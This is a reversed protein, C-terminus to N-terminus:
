GGSWASTGGTLARGCRRTGTWSSPAGRTWCPSNPARCATRPSSATRTPSSRSSSASTPSTPGSASWGAQRTACRRPSSWPSGTRARPPPPWWRPGRLRSSWPAPSAPRAPWSSAACPRASGPRAPSPAPTSRRPPSRKARPTAAARPSFRARPDVLLALKYIGYAAVYDDMARVLPNDRGPRRWNAPDHAATNLGFAQVDGYREFLSRDVTDTLAAAADAMRGMALGRLTGREVLLAGGLLLAPALGSGLLLLVIRARITLRQVLTMGGAARRWDFRPGRHECRCRQAPNVGPRPGRGSTPSAGRRRGRTGAGGEREHPRAPPRRPRRPPLPVRPRGPRQRDGVRQLRCGPGLGRPRGSPAGPAARRAFGHPERRGANQAAM